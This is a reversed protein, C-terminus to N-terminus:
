SSVSVITAHHRLYKQLRDNCTCVVICNQATLMGTIYLQINIILNPRCTTEIGELVWEHQNDAETFGLTYQGNM